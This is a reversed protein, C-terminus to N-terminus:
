SPWSAEINDLAEKVTEDGYHKDRNGPTDRIMDIRILLLQLKLVEDGRQGPM